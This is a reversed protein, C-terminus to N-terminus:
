NILILYDFAKLKISNQCLRKYKTLGILDYYEGDFNNCKIYFTQEKDSLNLLVITHKGIKQHYMGFSIIVDKCDNEIEIIQGEEWLASNSKRIDILKKYLTFLKDPKWEIEDKDFFKLRRYNGAEQGSYILPIGPLLFTLVTLPELFYHLREIASGQWSNEDHNSIFNLFSAGEPLYDFENKVLKILESANKKGAALGNM